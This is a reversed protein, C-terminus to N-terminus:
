NVGVGGLGMVEFGHGGSEDHKEDLVTINVKHMGPSLDRGILQLVRYGGWTAAFWAELTTPEGGDITVSARGMPGKIRYFMIYIREGSIEAEFVSGPQDAHWRGHQLTFGESSTPRLAAAERLECHCFIENLAEPLPKIAPLADDQPLKALIEALYSEVFQAALEHGPDNPHVEDAIVDEWALRKAEIEPWLADRFSVMPLQYHRGVVEDDAQANGGGTHMMFMLLVAPRQPESLIQRVVGELSERTDQGPGDNVAYEVVVLDPKHSLLDRQCRLAGYNSGTAGIGANHFSVKSDPFQEQWWAAIRNGYRFEPKTAKAGATISGGIVALTVPEGRRSKAMVHQVRTPEGAEVLAKAALAPVDFEPAQALAALTLVCCTVIM